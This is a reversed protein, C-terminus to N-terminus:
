EGDDVNAPIRQQTEGSLKPHQIFRGRLGIRLGRYFIPGPSGLRIILAVTLLIPSLVILAILSLTFDFARKAKESNNISETTM